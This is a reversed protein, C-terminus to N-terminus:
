CRNAKIYSFVAFSYDICPYVGWNELRGAEILAEYELWAEPREDPSVRAGSPVVIVREFYTRAGISEYVPLSIEGLILFCAGGHNAVSALSDAPMLPTLTHIVGGAVAMVCDIM